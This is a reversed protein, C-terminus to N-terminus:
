SALSQRFGLFAPPLRKFTKGSMEKMVLLSTEARKKLEEIKEKWELVDSIVEAKKEAVLGDQSEGM